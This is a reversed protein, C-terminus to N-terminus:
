AMNPTGYCLFQHYIAVKQFYFFEPTKDIPQCSQKPLTESTKQRNKVSIVGNTRARTSREIAEDNTPQFVPRKSEIYCEQSAEKRYRKQKVTIM